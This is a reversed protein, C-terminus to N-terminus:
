VIPYPSKGWSVYQEQGREAPRLKRGRDLSNDLSHQDPRFGVRAWAAHEASNGALDELPYPPAVWAMGRDLPVVQDQRTDPGTVADRDLRAM